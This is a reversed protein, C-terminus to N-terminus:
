RADEKSILTWRGMHRPVMRTFRTTAIDESPQRVFSFPLADGDDAMKLQALVTKEQDATMKPVPERNRWKPRFCDWLDATPGVHDKPPESSLRMLGRQREAEPLEFMRKELIQLDRKLDDAKVFRQTDKLFLPALRQHLRDQSVFLECFPLYYFYFTDVRNSPRDAAIQSLALALEFVVNVELVYCAYPAFIRIPPHHARAWRDRVRSVSLEGLGANHSVTKLVSWQNGTDILRVAADKAEALTRINGLPAKAARTAEKIQELNLGAVSKRWHQSILREAENFQGHQWRNFAEIEPPTEHVVHLGKSSRVYTGGPIVPRQSMEVPTGLLEGRLLHQHFANLYVHRCPTKRSLIEVLKQPSAHKGDPEKSLDGLVEMLFIPTLNTMYFHDFMVAEDVTLGQLFSKDFVTM